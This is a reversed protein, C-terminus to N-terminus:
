KDEPNLSMGLEEELQNRIKLTHRSQDGCNYGRRLEKIAEEKYGAALLARGLLFYTCDQYTNSQVELEKRYYFIASDYKELEHYSVGLGLNSFYITSDLALAKKNFQIAKEYNEMNLYTTGLGYYGISESNSKEVISNWFRFPDGFDDQFYLNLGGWCAFVISGYIIGHKLNKELWENLFSFGFTLGVMPLLMRHMMMFGSITTTILTLLFWVCMIVFHVSSTKYKWTWYFLLLVGPVSILLEIWTVSLLAAPYVPLLLAGIVFFVDDFGAPILDLYVLPTFSQISGAGSRMLFWILLVFVWSTTLSKNKWMWELSKKPLTYLIDAFSANSMKRDDQHESFDKALIALLVFLAPFLLAAEKTYLALAWFLIHFTANILGGKRRWRIFFLISWLTFTTLFLDVNGPSWIVAEVMAPHVSFLFTFLFRYATNFGVVQMFRLVTLQTIIMWFIGYFLYGDPNPDPTGSLLPIPMMMIIQLPRYYTTGDLLTVNQRFAQVLYSLNQMKDWQNDLILTDDLGTFKTNSDAYWLISFTILAITLITNRQVDRNM